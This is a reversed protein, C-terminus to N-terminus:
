GGSGAPDRQNELGHCESYYKSIQLIADHIQECFATLLRMHDLEKPADKRHFHRSILDSISKLASQSAFEGAEHGGIGDSVAFIFHRDDLPTEGEKGLYCLEFRDFMMLLFADENKSRYRGPSTQATWNLTTIASLTSHQSM